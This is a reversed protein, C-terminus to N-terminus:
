WSAKQAARAARAAERQKKFAELRNKMMQVKMDAEEQAREEEMLRDMILEKEEDEKQQRKQEETLEVKEEEKGEQVKPDDEHAASVPLGESGTPVLEPEAVITAREYTERPDSVQLFEKQFKEYELDLASRPLEASVIPEEDDTDSHTSFVVASSPDSFFDAPFGGAAAVAGLKPKKSTSTENSTSDASKRKHGAQEVMQQAEQEEQEQEEEEQAADAVEERIRAADRLREEEKIRAVRTRHAKSGLHGEWASAFKVLTSCIICRLQGSATYSALPHSIRAEQRKARLLARVDSMNQISISPTHHHQQSKIPQCHRHQVKYKTRWM